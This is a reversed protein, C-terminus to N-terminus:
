HLPPVLEELYVVDNQDHIEIKRGVIQHVYLVGLPLADGARTQVVVHAKHQGYKLLPGVLTMQGQDDEIWLSYVFSKFGLGRIKVRLVQVGEQDNGIATIHGEAGKNPSNEALDLYETASKTKGDDVFAPVASRLVVTSGARVEVSLGALEALTKGLPLQGTKTDAVFKKSSTGVLPGIDVFTATGDDIWLELGLQPLVHAVKVSLQERDGGFWSKVTVSGTADLDPADVLPRTLYLRSHQISPGASVPAALLLLAPVLLLPTKM